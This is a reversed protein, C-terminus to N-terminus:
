HAAEALESPVNRIGVGQEERGEQDVVAWTGNSFSALSCLERGTAVSWIVRWYMWSKLPLLLSRISSWRGVM